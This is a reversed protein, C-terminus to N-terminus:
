SFYISGDPSWELTGYSCTVFLRPYDYDSNLMLSTVKEWKPYMGGIFVVGEILECKVFTMLAEDFTMNATYTEGPASSAVAIGAVSNDFDSGKIILTKGGSGAPLFKPDITHVVEGKKYVAITHTTPTTDHTAVLSIREPIYTYLFPEGTDPLPSGPILAGNGFSPGETIFMTCEYEKGDFVITRIEGEETASPSVSADMIASALGNRVETTIETEPVEEVLGTEVWHTRGKVYDAANPDNQNWDPHVSSGGAGGACVEMHDGHAIKKWIYGGTQKLNVRSHENSSVCEYIDGTNADKYHQGVEGFMRRSPHGNGSLMEM